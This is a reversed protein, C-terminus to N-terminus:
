SHSTITGKSALISERDDQFTIQHYTYICFRLLLGGRAKRRVGHEGKTRGRPDLGEDLGETWTYRGHGVGSVRGFQQITQRSVSRFRSLSCHASRWSGYDQGVSYNEVDEAQATTENERSKTSRRYVQITTETMESEAAEGAERSLAVVSTNSAKWRESAM